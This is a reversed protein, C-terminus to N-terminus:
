PTSATRVVMFSLNGNPPSQSSGFTLLTQVGPPVAFKYYGASGGRASVAVATAEKLRGVALPYAGVDFVGTFVDRYNWSPHVLRPDALAGGSNAIAFNRLLPEPDRQLGFALTGFGTTTSNAFRQWVDADSAFSQDVAFRLFAWTAGRTELADGADIPSHNAPDLLYLYFRVFNSADDAVWTDFHARSDIIAQSTLRSRPTFGSERFYLLEEAVHSLGENLWTEEFDSASTNVYLRRSANILHQFEHALIGTTLTDVTGRTFKNGNVVGLPDPVIMYFM